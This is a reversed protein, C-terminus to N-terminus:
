ATEETTESKNVNEPTVLLGTGIKHLSFQFSTGRCFPAFGCGPYRRTWTLANLPQLCGGRGVGEAM